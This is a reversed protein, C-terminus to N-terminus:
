VLKETHFLETSKGKGKNKKNKNGEDKGVRDFQGEEREENERTLVASPQNRIVLAKGAGGVFKISYDGKYVGGEPCEFERSSQLTLPIVEQGEEGIVFESSGLNEVMFGSCNTLDIITDQTYISPKPPSYIPRSM